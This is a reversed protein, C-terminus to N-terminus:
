STSARGGAGPSTYGQNVGLGRLAELVAIPRRTDLQDIDIAFWRVLGDQSLPYIGLSIQGNLHRRYNEVTVSEKIAQGHLAGWVDTRGAFLSAFTKVAVDSVM